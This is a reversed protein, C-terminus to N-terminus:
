KTHHTNNTHQTKNYYWQWRTFVWKCNFYIIIFVRTWLSTETTLIAITNSSYVVSSFRETISKKTPLLAWYLHYEYLFTEQKRHSTNTTYSTSVSTHFHSFCCDFFVKKKAAPKPCTPLAVRCTYWHQHLIHRTIIKKKKWLNSYWM